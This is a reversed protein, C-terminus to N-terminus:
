RAFRYARSAAPHAKTTAGRGIGLPGRPSYLLWGRCPPPAPSAPWVIPEAPTRSLSGNHRNVFPVHLEEAIMEAMRERVREHPIVAGSARAEAVAAELALREAEEDEVPAPTNTDPAMADETPPVTSVIVGPSLPPLVMGGVGPRRVRAATRRRTM